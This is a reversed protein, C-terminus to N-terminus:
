VADPSMHRLDREPPPSKLELFTYLRDKLVYTHIHTNTHTNLKHCESQKLSRSVQEVKESTINTFKKYKM